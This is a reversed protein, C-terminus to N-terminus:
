SKSFIQVLRKLFTHKKTKIELKLDSPKEFRLEKGALLTSRMEAKSLQNPPLNFAKKATMREIKKFLETPIDPHSPTPLNLQLNTMVAPNPHTHPLKGTFLRWMCIGLSFQDTRWDVLDLQNLILEPAAYGLPFVLKRNNLESQRIALGFDILHVEFDTQTEEILINSPKLDCHVISEQQLFDLIPIMKEMWKEIFPIRENRNLKEWYLDLQIGQKYQLLIEFTDVTEFKGIVKPLSPHEFTFLAEHALLVQTATTKETKTIKKLVCIENTDVIEVLYVDTFKRKM